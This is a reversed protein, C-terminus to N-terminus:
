RRSRASAPGDSRARRCATPALRCGEPSKAPRLRAASTRSRRGGRRACGRTSARPKGILDVAALVRLETRDQLLQSGTAGSRLGELPELLALGPCWGVFQVYRSHLLQEFGMRVRDDQGARPVSRLGDVLEGELRQERAKRWQCDHISIHSGIRLIVVFSGQQFVEVGQAREAQGDEFSHSHDECAIYAFIDVEHVAHVAHQLAILTAGLCHFHQRGRPVPDHHPRPGVGLEAVEAVIGQLCAIGVGDDFVLTCLQLVNSGEQITGPDRPSCVGGEASDAKALVHEDTAHHGSRM